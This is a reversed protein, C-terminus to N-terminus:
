HIAGSCAGSKELVLLREKQDDTLKGRRNDNGPRITPVNELREQISELENSATSLTESMLFQLEQQDDTSLHGQKEVRDKLLKLKKQIYKLDM